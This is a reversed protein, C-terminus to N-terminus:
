NTQFTITPKAFYKDPVLSISGKISGKSTNQISIEKKGTVTFSMYVVEDFFYVELNQRNDTAKINLPLFFSYAVQGTKPLFRASFKKPKPIPLNKGDLKLFLYYKDKEHKKFDINYIAKQEDKEFKKNKNKDFEGSITVTSTNDYTWNIFVGQLGDKNMCAHVKYEVFIHAHALLSGQLAFLLTMIIYIKQQM